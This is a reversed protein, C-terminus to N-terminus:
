SICDRFYLCHIPSSAWTFSNAKALGSRMGQSFSYFSLSTPTPFLSCRRAETKKIFDPVVKSLTTPLHHLLVRSSHHVNPITVAPLSLPFWDCVKSLVALCSRM